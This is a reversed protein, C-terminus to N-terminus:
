TSFASIRVNRLGAGAGTRHRGSRGRPRLQDRPQPNGPRPQASQVGGGGTWRREDRLGEQDVSPIWVFRNISDAAGVHSQWRGTRGDTRRDMWGDMWGARIGLEGRGPSLRDGEQGASPPPPSGCGGRPVWVNHPTPTQPAAGAWWGEAAGHARTSDPQGSFGGGPGEQQMEQLGGRGQGPIPRGSLLCSSWRSGPVGQGAGPPRAAGGGPDVTRPVEVPPGQGGGPGRVSPPPREGGTGAM